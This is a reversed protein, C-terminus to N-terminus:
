ARYIVLRGTTTRATRIEGRAALEILGEIDTELTRLTTDVSGLRTLSSSNPPFSVRTRQPREIPVPGVDWYYYRYIEGDDGEFGRGDPPAPDLLKTVTVIRRAPTRKGRVSVVEGVALRSWSPM